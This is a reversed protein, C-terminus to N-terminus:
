EEFEEWEETEENYGILKYIYSLFEEESDFLDDVNPFSVDYPIGQEDYYIVNISSISHCVSDCMGAFLLWDNEALYDGLPIENVKHGYHRGWRNGKSWKGEYRRLYNILLCEVETLTETVFSDNMYDGDNADCKISIEYCNTKQNLAKGIIPKATGPIYNM